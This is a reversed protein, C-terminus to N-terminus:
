QDGAERSWEMQRAEWLGVLAELREPYHDALNNSESIDEALNYLEWLKSKRPRIAKWDEQRIAAQDKYEWFLERHPPEGAKGQLFPLLPVGDTRGLARKDGVLEAATAYLDLSSVAQEYIKGAPLKGPWRMMMPVRIGGEYLHMKGSRLPANSSTLEPTIGGNDSLFVVLTEDELQHEDLKALVRGVSTDLDSLMAAFIRRQIDKIHAFKAITRDDAQLPSHVASHAVYLFFPHHHNKGIFDLARETFTHTLYSFEHVPKHGDLVPNNLDYLPENRLRDHYIIGDPATWTGTRGDPLPSKRLMTTVGGYPPPVYYHGEHLYGFFQDFGNALPHFDERAGLHWKGVMGTAYGAERLMEPM